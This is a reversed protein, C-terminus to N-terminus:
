LNTKPVTVSSPGYSSKSTPFTVGFAEAIVPRRFLERAVRIWEFATSRAMGTIKWGGVWGSLGKESKAQAEMGQVRQFPAAGKATPTALKATRPRLTHPRTAGGSPPGRQQSRRSELM